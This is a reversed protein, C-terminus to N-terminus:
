LLPMKQRLIVPQSVGQPEQVSLTTSM